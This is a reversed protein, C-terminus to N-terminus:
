EGRNTKEVDDATAGKGNASGIGIGNLEELRRIRDLVADPQFEAREAQLTAREREEDVRSDRLFALVMIFGGVSVGALNAALKSLPHLEPFVTELLQFGTSVVAGRLHHCPRHCLVQHKEM